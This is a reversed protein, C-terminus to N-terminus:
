TDLGEEIIKQNIGKLVKDITKIIFLTDEKNVLSNENSFKSKLKIAEKLDKYFPESTIDYNLYIKLASEFKERLSLGEIYDLAWDKDVGNNMLVKSIVQDLRLELANFAEMNANFLKLSDLQNTPTQSIIKKAHDLYAEYLNIEIVKTTEISAEKKYIDDFEERSITTWYQPDQYTEDLSEVFNVILAKFEEYERSNIIDKIRNSGKYKGELFGPFKDEIKLLSLILPKNMLSFFGKIEEPAKEIFAAWMLKQVDGGTIEALAKNLKDSAPPTKGNQLKSLYPKTAKIGFGELKESIEDLTLRSEKIYYRLLNAYNM